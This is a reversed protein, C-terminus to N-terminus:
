ATVKFHECVAAYREAHTRLETHVMVSYPIDAIVLPYAVYTAIQFAQDKDVKVSHQTTKGDLQVKRGHAPGGILTFTKM